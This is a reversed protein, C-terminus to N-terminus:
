QRRNVTGARNCAELMSDATSAGGPLQASQGLCHDHLDHMYFAKTSKVGERNLALHVSYFEM